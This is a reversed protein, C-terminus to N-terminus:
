TSASLFNIPCGKTWKWLSPERTYTGLQEKQNPIFLPHEGKGRAPTKQKPKSEHAPNHACIAMPKWEEHVKILLYKQTKWLYKCHAKPCNTTINLVIPCTEFYKQLYYKSQHIKHQLYHEHNKIITDYSLHHDLPNLHKGHTNFTYIISTAICIICMYKVPKYYSLMIRLIARLSNRWLIIAMTRKKGHYCSIKEKGLTSLRPSKEKQYLLELSFQVKINGTLIPNQYQWHSNPKLTVM